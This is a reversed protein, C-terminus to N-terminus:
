GQKIYVTHSFRYTWYMAFVFGVILLVIVSALFIVKFSAVTMRGINSFMKDHKKRFILILVLCTGAIIQLWISKSM